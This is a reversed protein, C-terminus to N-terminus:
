IQRHLQLHLFITPTLTSNTSSYSNAGEEENYRQLFDTSKISLLHKVTEVDGEKLGCLTGEQQAYCAHLKERGGVGLLLKWWANYLLTLGPIRFSAQIDPVGAHRERIREIQRGEVHGSPPSEQTEIGNGKTMSSITSSDTIAIDCCSVDESKKEEREARNELVVDGDHTLCVVSGDVIDAKEDRFGFVGAKKKEVSLEKILAELCSIVELVGGADDDEFACGREIAEAANLVYSLLERRSVGNSAAEHTFSWSALQLTPPTYTKIGNRTAYDNFFIHTTTPFDAHPEPPLSFAM